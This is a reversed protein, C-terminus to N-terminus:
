SMKETEMFLRGWRLGRDSVVVHDVELYTCIEWLYWAGVAIVDARRPNLGIARSREEITQSWLQRGIAEIAEVRLVHGQVLDPDWTDLKLDLAALSTVTGAVGILTAAGEEKALQQSLTHRIGERMRALEEETPPDNVVYREMLRVVGLDISQSKLQKPSWHLLETSAGGIDLVQMASWDPFSETTAKLTLAGEEEGSAVCLEVGLAESLTQAVDLGNEARRFPATGTIWIRQSHLERARQVFSRLVSLARAIPAPSLRGSADLGESIRAVEAREEIRDWRGEDSREAVLMLISNSGVDISTVRM